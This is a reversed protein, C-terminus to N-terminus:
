AGFGVRALGGPFLARLHDERAVDGHERRVRTVRVGGDGTQIVLGRPTWVAEAPALARPLPAGYAEAGLVEVLEEGLLASAGPYPSAARVLRVVEDAPRRWDIRLLEEDPLPAHTALAEDQPRGILAEGARLRAACTLLLALGPRDLRKALRWADDSPPIAVPVQAVIAGTDYAAELRHLTVGTEREGAFLTWFYPDPGRWRPLLSPHVGFAGRPALRLVQEPIRRPYFWSLLADPRVDAITRVVREDRLEPQVLIPVRDGLTRVLRRTGPADTHGLGILAPTFGARALALAALPLGFFAITPAQSSM